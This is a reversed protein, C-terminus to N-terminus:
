RTWMSIIDLMSTTLGSAGLRPPELPVTVENDELPVEQLRVIVLSSTSNHFITVHWPRCNGFISAMPVPGGDDYAITVSSCAVAVLLPCCWCFAVLYSSLFWCVRIVTILIRWFNLCNRM